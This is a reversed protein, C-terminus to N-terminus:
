SLKIANNIENQLMSAYVKSGVITTHVGDSGFYEDHQSSVEYWDAISANSYQPVVEKIKQNFDAGWPRSVRTTCFIIKHDNGIEKIIEHLTSTSCTGNTGLEIIIVDGLKGEQRIQQIRNQLDWIQFGVMSSFYINKYKPKLFPEVNIMISDGIVTIKHGKALNDSIIVPQPTTGQHPNLPASSPKPSPRPSPKPSPKPGPKPGPKPSPKPVPTPSPKPRQHAEVHPSGSPPSTQIMIAGVSTALFLVAILVYKLRSLIPRSKIKSSGFRIPKDIFYYITWALVMTITIQLVCVWLNFGKTNITPTLLAIVPFQVLYIEYSFTGIWKLPAIGFVKSIWTEQRVSSIILLACFASFLLMGGQYLFDNFESTFIVFILFAGLGVTGFINLLYLKKNTLIMSRLKLSPMIFAMAAGLLLSFIRTDTGYYVRSINEGNNYLIGMAASSALAGILIVGVLLRKHNRFIKLGVLLFIPWIIYFQEEVALSWLHNLLPPIGFVDFYSIQRIINWWNSYYFVAPILDPFLKGTLDPRFFTVFAGLLLLLVFLGPLLRKARRIWFKRFAITGNKNWENLILDTILYGSLVFFLTVGLFGGPTLTVGAHYFVVAFVALARLGDIGPMYNLNNKSM